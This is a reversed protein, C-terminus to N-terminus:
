LNVNDANWYLEIMCLYFLNKWNLKLNLQPHFKRSVKQSPTGYSLVRSKSLLEAAYQEAYVIHLDTSSCTSYDHLTDNVVFNFSKNHPLLSNVCKYMFMALQYKFIDYVTM